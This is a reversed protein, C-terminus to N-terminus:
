VREDAGQWRRADDELRRREADVAAGEARLAALAAKLQRATEGAKQGIARIDEQGLLDALLSKIEGNRYTS